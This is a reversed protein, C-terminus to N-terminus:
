QLQHLWLCSDGNGFLGQLLLFQLMEWTDINPGCPLYSLTNSIPLPVISLLKTGHQGSQNLSFVVSLNFTKGVACKISKLFRLKFKIVCGSRSYAYILIKLHVQSPCLFVFGGCIILTILIVYIASNVHCNRCPM